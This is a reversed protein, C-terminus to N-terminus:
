LEMDLVQYQYYFYRFELFSIYGELEEVQFVFLKKRLNIGNQVLQKECCVGM